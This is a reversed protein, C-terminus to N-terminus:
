MTRSSYGKIRASRASEDRLAQCLLTLADLLLLCLLWLWTAPYRTSAEISNPILQSFTRYPFDSLHVVRTANGSLTLECVQKLKEGLISKGTGKRGLMLWKQRKLLPELMGMDFYGDAVLKPVEAAEAEGSAKGFVINAFRM